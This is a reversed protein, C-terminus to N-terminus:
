LSRRWHAVYITSKCKM